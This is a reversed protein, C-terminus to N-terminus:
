QRDQGLFQYKTPETQQKQKQKDSQEHSKLKSQDKDPTPVPGDRGELQLVAKDRKVLQQLAELNKADLLNSDRVVIVTGKDLRKHKNRQEWYARRLNQAVEQLGNAPRTRGDKLAEWLSKRKSQRRHQHLFGNVQDSTLEARGPPTKPTTVKALVAAGVGLAVEKAKVIFSKKGTTKDQQVETEVGKDAFAAMMRKPTEETVYRVQDNYIIRKQGFYKEDKLAYEVFQEVHKAKVPQGNAATKGISALICEERIQEETKVGYKRNAKNLGEVVVEYAAHKMQRTHEAKEKPTQPQAAAAVTSPHPFERLLFKHVDVGQKECELRVALRREDPTSHQRDPDQKNAAHFARALIARAQPDGARGADKLYKDIDAKTFSLADAVKELGLIEVHKGDKTLGVRMGQSMLLDGLDKQIRANTLAVQQYVAKDLGHPAGFQGSKAWAMYPMVGHTHLHSGGRSDNTNVLLGIFSAAKEKHVGQAGSRVLLNECLKSFHKEVIAVYKEILEKRRAPEQMDTCLSVTKGNTQVLQIMQWKTQTAKNARVYDAVTQIFDRSFSPPLPQGTADCFRPLGKGFVPAYFGWDEKEQHMEPTLVYGFGTSKSINIAM